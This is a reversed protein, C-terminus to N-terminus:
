GYFILSCHVLYLPIDAGPPYQIEPIPDMRHMSEESLIEHVGPNLDDLDITLQIYEAVIVPLDEQLWQTDDSCCQNHAQGIACHPQKEKCCARAVQEKPMEHCGAKVFLTVHKLEGRCYHLHLPVGIATLSYLLLLASVISKRVM